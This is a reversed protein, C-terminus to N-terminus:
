SVFKPLCLFTRFSLIWYLKGTPLPMAIPLTATRVTADTRGLIDYAEDFVRRLRGVSSINGSGELSICERIVAGATITGINFAGLVNEELSLVGSGSRLEAGLSCLLSSARHAGWLLATCLLSVILIPFLLNWVLCPSISSVFGNSKVIAVMCWLALVLLSAFVVIEITFMITGGLSFTLIYVKLFDTYQLVEFVQNQLLDVGQYLFMKMLELKAVVGLEGNKDYVSRLSRPSRLVQLASDVETKVSEICGILAIGRRWSSSVRKLEFIISILSEQAKNLTEALQESLQMVKTKTHDIIEGLAVALENLKEMIYVIGKFPVIVEQERRKALSGAHEWRDPSTTSHDHFQGAIVHEVFRFASCAAEESLAISRQTFIGGTCALLLAVVSLAIALVPLIVFHANRRSANEEVSFGASGSSCALSLPVLLLWIFFLVCAMIGFALVEPYKKSDFLHSPDYIYETYGPNSLDFLLIEHQGDALAVQVFTEFVCLWVTLSPKSFRM